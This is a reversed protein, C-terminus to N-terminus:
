ARCDHQGQSCKSCSGVSGAELSRLQDKLSGGGAVKPQNSNPKSSFAQQISEIAKIEQSQLGGEWLKVEM